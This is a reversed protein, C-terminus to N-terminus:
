RIRFHNRLALLFLFILPASLLNQLLGLYAVADPVHPLPRRPQGGNEPKVPSEVGYLCRYIQSLKDNSGVGPFLLGKRLSLQFASSMPDGVAAECSVKTTSEGTGSAVLAALRHYVWSTTSIQRGEFPPHHDLYVFTFTVVVVAWWVLPLAMSRGFDSLVQYLWGFWYAAHWPRETIGRRSKLEGKFFLQEQVHDHGQIALRKLAQWRASRDSAGVAPTKREGDPEIRCHDLRPAETFHAQIFDPLVTFTTGALSFTKRGDIARFNAAATFSADDFITYGNFVSEDFSTDGEFNARSFWSTSEFKTLSFVTLAKFTAGEFRASEDFKVADFRAAGEFCAADFVVFNHLSAENFVALSEFRCREFVTFGRFDASEFGASAKFCAENFNVSANFQARDFTADGVFRSKNFQADETFTAYSYSADSNFHANNFCSARSFTAEDFAAKGNFCALQFEAENGFKAHSFLADEKFCAKDFEADGAFPTGIFNAPAEFDAMSFKVRQRFNAGRFTVPGSFLAEGFMAAEQFIAGLQAHAAFSASTFDADRRFDAKTFDTNGPFIFGSFDALRDFPVESFDAEAETQWNRTPQNWDKPDNSDVWSGDKVLAERAARM